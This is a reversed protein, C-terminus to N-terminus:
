CIQEWLIGKNRKIVHPILYWWIYDTSVANKLIMLDVFKKEYKFMINKFIFNVNGENVNNIKFVEREVTCSTCSVVDIKYEEMKM